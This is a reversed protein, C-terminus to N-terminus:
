ERSREGPRDFEVYKKFHSRPEFRERISKKNYIKLALDAINICETKLSLM